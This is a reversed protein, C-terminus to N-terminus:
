RTRRGSRVLLVLVVGALLGVMAIFVLGAPVLGTTTSLLGLGVVPLSIGVYLAVFFASSIAGRQDPPSVEGISALGARFSMGQGVGAILAGIVLLPLSAV